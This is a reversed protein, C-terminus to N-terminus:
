DPLENIASKVVGSARQAPTIRQAIETVHRKVANRVEIADGGTVGLQQVFHDAIRDSVTDIAGFAAMEKITNKSIGIDDSAQLIARLMNSDIHM